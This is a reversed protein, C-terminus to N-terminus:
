NLFQPDFTLSYMISADFGPLTHVWSWFQIPIEKLHKRYNYNVHPLNGFDKKWGSTFSLHPAYKRFQKWIMDFRVKDIPKNFLMYEGDKISSCFLSYKLNNCNACFGCETLNNSNWIISGNVINNSNFIEDATIIYNSLVVEQSNEVNKSQLIRASKVVFASMGVFQSDEVYESASVYNSNTINTSKYIEESNDVHSSDSVLSSNYVHTSEHIGISDVVDIRAWYAKTEEENPDLHQYGWHLFGEPLHRMNIVDIMEVGDPFHEIFFDIFDQSAGRKQMLDLTIYM